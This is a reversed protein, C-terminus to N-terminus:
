RPRVEVAFFRERAQRFEVELRDVIAAVPEISKSAGLGQGASLVERWRKPRHAEGTDFKSPDPPLNDPDFGVSRISAKLWSAPSGTFAASILVGDLDGEVVMRKHEQPAISEPTAIFRTGMYVCDAGAAIAGAVGWGDAIGGGVFVLGDFFERVASIFAFPSIFGTHGGAGAAICAL